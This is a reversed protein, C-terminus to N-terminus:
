HAPARATRWCCAFGRRRHTRARRRAAARGGVRSATPKLAHGGALHGCSDNLAKFNDLDLVALCVRARGARDGLVSEVRETWARRNALGTLPDSLALAELRSLLTERERERARLAEAQERVRAVLHQVTVGIMASLSVFL